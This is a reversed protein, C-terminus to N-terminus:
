EDPHTPAKGSVAAYPRTVDKLIVDLAEVEVRLAGDGAFTVTVVGSPSETEEFAVSLVSLVTDADGPRIGQGAVRTVNDLVLLARVREVPRGSAEAETKDEWRLRNLLLAVRGESRRWTIDSAQLVGDQALSSVVSLDESDQAILQLARVGGDEFRADQSM